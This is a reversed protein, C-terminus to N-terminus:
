SRQPSPLLAAQLLSRGAPSLIAAITASIEAIQPEAWIEFRSRIEDFFAKSYYDSFFFFREFLPVQPGYHSTLTEFEKRLKELNLDGPLTVETNGLWPGVYQDFEAKGRFPWAISVHGDACERATLIAINPKAIKDLWDNPVDTRMEAPVLYAAKITLQNKRLPLENLSAALTKIILVEHIPPNKGTARIRGAQERLRQKPEESVQVSM